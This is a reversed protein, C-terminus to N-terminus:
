QWLEAIRDKTKKEFMEILKKAPEILAQEAEIQAIIQQQIELSPTPINYSRIDALSIFSQTNGRKVSM